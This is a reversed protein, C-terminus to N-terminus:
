PWIQTRVPVTDGFKIELARQAEDEFKQHKLCWVFTEGDITITHDLKM